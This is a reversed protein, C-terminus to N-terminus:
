LTEDKKPAFLVLAGAPSKSYAIQGLKLSEELWERLVKLEKALFLCLPLFSPLTEKELDIIYDAKRRPPLEKAKTKIFFIEM